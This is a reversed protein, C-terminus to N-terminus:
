NMELKAGEISMEVCSEIGDRWQQQLYDGVPKFDDVQRKKRTQEIDDIMQRKDGIRQQLDQDIEQLQQLHQSQLQSLEQKNKLMVNLNRQQLHAYELTTYMQNYNIDVERETPSIVSNNSNFDTYRSLDIGGEMLIPPPNNTDDDDEESEEEYRLVERALLSSPVNSAPLPLLQDVLPHMNQQHLQQQQSLQQQLSVRNLNNNNTHAHNNTMNTVNNNFQNALEMEILQEVHAREEPSINEDIYPLHELPEYNITVM